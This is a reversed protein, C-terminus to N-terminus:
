FLQAQIPVLDALHASRFNCAAKAAGEVHGANGHSTTVDAGHSGLGKPFEDNTALLHSHFILYLISPFRQSSSTELM